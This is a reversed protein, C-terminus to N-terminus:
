LVWINMEDKTRELRTTHHSQSIHNRYANLRARRRVAPTESSIWKADFRWVGTRLIVMSLRGVGAKEEEENEALQLREGYDGVFFPTRKARMCTRSSYMEHRTALSIANTQTCHQGGVVVWPPETQWRRQTTRRTQRRPEAARLCPQCGSGRRVDKVRM